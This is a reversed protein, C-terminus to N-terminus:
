YYIIIQVENLFCCRFREKSKKEYFFLIKQLCNSLRNFVTKLRNSRTFQSDSNLFNKTLYVPVFTTIVNYMGCTASCNSLMEPTARKSIKHLMKFSFQGKCDKQCIKLMKSSTQWIKQNYSNCVPCFFAM